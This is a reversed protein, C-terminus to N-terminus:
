EINLSIRSFLELLEPYDPRADANESWCKKILESLDPGFREPIKPRFRQEVILSALETLPTNEFM